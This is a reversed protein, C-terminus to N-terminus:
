PWTAAIKDGQRGGKASRVGNKPGPPRQRTVWDDGKRVRRGTRLTLNDSYRTGRDNGKRVIRGKEVAQRPWIMSRLALYGCDQGM